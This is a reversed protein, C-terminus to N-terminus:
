FSPADGALNVFVSKVRTMNEIQERGGSIGLGSGKYRDHAAVADGHVTNVHVTGVQVKRAFAHARTLDNTWVSASLGYITANAIRVADAVDAFPIVSLVPGFIEDQAIGMGPEVGTFVTPAYFNGNECAGGVTPRAGGASLTAGEESGRAVYREVRALQEASILAGLQTAPDFPDGVVLDGAAAVLREVFADHISQEVLLRTGATCLQGQNLTFTFLAAAAATELVADAFVVNPSKGGLELMVRKLSRGATAAIERGVDTSGTFIVMDVGPSSVLAAGTEPGTGTVVNFVGDPLGAERFLAALALATLPTQEAPKLVVANGIALAGPISEAYLLVPFNWPTIVGVVGIPERVSYNLSGPGTPM